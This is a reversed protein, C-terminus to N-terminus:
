RVKGVHCNMCVVPLPEAIIDDHIIEMDLVVLEEGNSEDGDTDDLRPFKRAISSMHRRDRAYELKSLVRKQEQRSFVM